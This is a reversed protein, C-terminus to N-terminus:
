PRHRRNLDARQAAEYLPGLVLVAVLQGAALVVAVPTSVSGVLDDSRFGAVSVYILPALIGAAFTAFAVRSRRGEPRRRALVGSRDAYARRLWFGGLIQVFLSAGILLSRPFPAGFGNLGCILVVQSSLVGLVPYYWWPTRLREAVDLRAAAVADLSRRADDAALSEM